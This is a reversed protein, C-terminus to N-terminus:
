ELDEEQIPTEADPYVLKLLGDITKKVATTDRGSLAGGFTVRNQVTNFRSEGRLTTWAESMFDSVLGFHSTFISQDVKPVDWGPLYCHVRDM